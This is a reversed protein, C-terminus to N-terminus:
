RGGDHSFAAVPLGFDDIVHERLWEDSSHRVRAASAHAIGTDPELDDRAAAGDTRVGRTGVGGSEHPGDPPQARGGGDFVHHSGAHHIRPDGVEADRKPGRTPRAGGRHDVGIAPVSRVSWVTVPGSPAVSFWQVRRAVEPAVTPSPTYQIVAVGAPALM